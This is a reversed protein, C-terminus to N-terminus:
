GHHYPHGALITGARYLQEVVLLQAIRHPLTLRSLGLVRTAAQRDTDTFGHADGVLFDIQRIGRDRWDRIWGALERSNPQEGREDVVVRQADAKDRLAAMSRLALYELPLFPQSRRIYGNLQSEFGVDKLKGVVLIRIKM